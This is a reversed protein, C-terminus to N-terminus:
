LKNVEFQLISYCKLQECVLLLPVPSDAAIVITLGVREPAAKLTITKKDLQFVGRLIPTYLDVKTSDILPENLGKNDRPKNPTFLLETRISYDTKLPNEPKGINSFQSARVSFPLKEISRFAFESARQWEYQTTQLIWDAEEKTQDHHVLLRQLEDDDDFDDSVKKRKFLVVVIVAGGIVIVGGFIIMIMGFLSLETTNKIVFHKSTVVSNGCEATVYLRGDQLATTMNLKLNSALGERQALMTGDLWWTHRTCEDPEIVVRFVATTGAFWVVQNDKPMPGKTFISRMKLAGFRGCSQVHGFPNTATLCIRLHSECPLEAETLSLWSETSRHQAGNITWSFTLNNGKVSPSITANRGCLLVSDTLELTFEPAATTMKSFAEHMDLSTWRDRATDYMDLTRDSFVLLKDSTQALSKVSGRMARSTWMNKSAEYVYLTTSQDSFVAINAHAAADTPIEALPAQARTWTQTVIDFVNIFTSQEAEKVPVLLRGSTIVSSAALHTNLEIKQWTNYTTDLVNIATSETESKVLFIVHKGSKNAALVPKSSIIRTTYSTLDLVFLDSDESSYFYIVENVAISRNHTVTMNTALTHIQKLKSDYVDVFRYLASDQTQGGVLLLHNGTSVVHINYRPVNLQFSSWSDERTNYLDVASTAQENILGGAFAIKENFVCVGINKRQYQSDKFSYFSGVISTRDNIRQRNRQSFSHSRLVCLILNTTIPRLPLIFGFFIALTGNNLLLSIALQDPGDILTKLLLSSSRLSVM